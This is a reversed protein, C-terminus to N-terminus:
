LRANIWDWVDKNLWGQHQGSNVRSVFLRDNGDLKKQLKDSVAQASSGTSIFRVTELGNDKKNEYTELEKLFADRAQNYNAREKNINWTVV